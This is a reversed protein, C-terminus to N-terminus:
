MAGDMEKGKAGNLDGEEEGEELQRGVLSMQKQYDFVINYHEPINNPDVESLFIENEKKVKISGLNVETLDSGEDLQLGMTTSLSAVQPEIKPNMLDFRNDALVERQFTDVGTIDREKLGAMKVKEFTDEM